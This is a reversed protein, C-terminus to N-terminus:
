HILKHSLEVCEAIAVAPVLGMWSGDVGSGFGSIMSLKLCKTWSLLGGFSCHVGGSAPGVLQRSLLPSRTVETKRFFSFVLLLDLLLM